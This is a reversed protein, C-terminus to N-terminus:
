ELTLTIDETTGIPLKTNAHVDITDLTSTHVIKLIINPHYKSFLIYM